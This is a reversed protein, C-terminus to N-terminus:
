RPGEGGELAKLYELFTESPKTAKPAGHKLCERRYHIVQRIAQVDMSLMDALKYFWSKDKQLADIKAEIDELKAIIEGVSMVDPLNYSGNASTTDHTLDAIERFSIM